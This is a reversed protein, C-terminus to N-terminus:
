FEIGRQATVGDDFPHRVAAIESVLDCCDQLWQPAKRGTIVIHPASAPLTRFFTEVEDQDLWLEQLPYTIEDLVVVDYSGSLILESTERWGRRIEERVPTTDKLKWTFGKGYNFWAVGLKGAMKWEGWQQPKEKIFQVVACRMGHGLARFLLGLAATTKGKGNGTYVMTLRKRMAVLYCSLSMLVVSIETDSM